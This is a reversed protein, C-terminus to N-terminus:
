NIDRVNADRGAQIGKSTGSLNQVQSATEKGRSIFFSGIFAAASAATAVAPEFGPSHIVWALSLLLAVLSILIAAIRM